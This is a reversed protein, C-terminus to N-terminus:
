VGGGAWCAQPHELYEGWGWLAQIEHGPIPSLLSKASGPSLKRSQLQRSNMRGGHGLTGWTDGM